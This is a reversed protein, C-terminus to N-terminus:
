RPSSRSRTRPDSRCRGGPPGRGRSSRPRDRSRARRKPGLCVARPRDRVSAVLENVRDGVCYGLVLVALPDIDNLDAFVSDTTEETLALHFAAYGLFSLADRLGIASAECGVVLVRAGALQSFSNVIVAPEQVRVLPRRGGYVRYLMGGAALVVDVPNSLDRRELARRLADAEASGDPERALRRVAEEVTPAEFAPARERARPFDGPETLFVRIM